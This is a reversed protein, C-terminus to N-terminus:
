KGFELSIKAADFYEKALRRAIFYKAMAIKIIRDETEQPNDKILQMITEIRMRREIERRNMM